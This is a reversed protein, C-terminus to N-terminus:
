IYEPLEFPASHLRTNRNGSFARACFNASHWLHASKQLWNETNATAPRALTFSDRFPNCWQIRRARRTRFINVNDCRAKKTLSNNGFCSTAGYEFEGIEDDSHPQRWFGSKAVANGTALTLLSCVTRFSVTPLTIRVPHRKWIRAFFNRFNCDFIKYKKSFKWKCILATPVGNSVTNGLIAPMAHFLLGFPVLRTGKNWATDKNRPRSPADFFDVNKSRSIEVKWFPQLVPGAVRCYQSSVRVIHIYEPLESRASHLWINM